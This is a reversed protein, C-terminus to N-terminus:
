CGTRISRGAGDPHSAVVSRASTGPTTSVQAAFQPALDTKAAIALLETFSEMPKTARLAQYYVYCGRRLTPGERTRIDHEVLYFDSGLLGTAEVWFVKCPHEAIVKDLHVISGAEYYEWFWPGFLREGHFSAM